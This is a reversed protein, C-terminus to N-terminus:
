HNFSELVKHKQEFKLGELNVTSVHGFATYAGQSTWAHFPQEDSVVHGKSGRDAHCSASCAGAIPEALSLLESEVAGSKLIARVGGVDVKFDGFRSSAM